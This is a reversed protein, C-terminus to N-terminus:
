HFLKTIKPCHIYAFTTDNHSLITTLKEQLPVGLAHKRHWFGEKNKLKSYNLFKKLVTETFYM